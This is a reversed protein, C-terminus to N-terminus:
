MVLIQLVMTRRKRKSYRTNMKGTDKRKVIKVSVQDLNQDLNKEIVVLGKKNSRSRAVLDDAYNNGWNESVKKKLEKSNLADKVDNISISDRRSSYLMTDVFHEFSPPLSCLLILAQDEGEVKCEINKLDLVIRNFEDLHDSVPTGEKM